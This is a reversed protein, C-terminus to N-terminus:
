LLVNLQSKLILSDDTSFKRHLMPSFISQFVTNLEIGTLKVMPPTFSCGASYTHLVM